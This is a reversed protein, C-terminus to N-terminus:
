QKMCFLLAINTPRNETSTPVQNSANFNIYYAGNRSNASWVSSNYVWWNSFIWSAWRLWAWVRIQWTINRITDWQTSWVKNVDGLWWSRSSYDPDYTSSTINARIFKWKLDPTGNNWDALIWWTPCSTLYFSWIFWSPLSTNSVRSNLDNIDNIVNNWISSTITDWNNQTSLNTRTAYWIFSIITTWSFILWWLFYHKLTKM